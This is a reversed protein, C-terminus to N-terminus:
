LESSAVVRHAMAMKCKKNTQKNKMKREEKQEPGERRM